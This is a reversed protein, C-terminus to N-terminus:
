SNERAARMSCHCLHTAAVSISHRAFVLPNGSTLTIQSRCRDGWQNGPNIQSIQSALCTNGEERVARHADRGFSHAWYFLVVMGSLPPGNKPWPYVLLQAGRSSGGFLSEFVLPNGDQGKFFMNGLYQEIWYKVHMSLTHHFQVCNFTDLPFIPNKPFKLPQKFYYLYSSAIKTSLQYQM